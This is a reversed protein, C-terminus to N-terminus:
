SWHIVEILHIHSSFHQSPASHEFSMLLIFL